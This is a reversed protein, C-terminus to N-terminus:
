PVWGGGGGFFFFFVCVVFLLITLGHIVCASSISLAGGQETAAYSLSKLGQVGFERQARRLGLRSPPEHTTIRPTILGRIQTIVITARSIM